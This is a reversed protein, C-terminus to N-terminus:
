NAKQIQLEEADKSEVLSPGHLVANNVISFCGHILPGLCNLNAKM